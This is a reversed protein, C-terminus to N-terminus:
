EEIEEYESSKDKLQVIYYILCCIIIISAVVTGAEVGIFLYLNVQKEVEPAEYADEYIDAVGFFLMDMDSNGTFSPAILRSLCSTDVSPFQGDNNLFSAMMEMGCTMSSNHQHSNLITLHSSYPVEILRVNAPAGMNVAQQQAYKLPTEADLDGNLLLVPIQPKPAKNFYEDPQYIPFHSTSLTTALSVSQGTGMLTKNYQEVVVNVNALSLDRPFLESFSILDEWVVSFGVPLSHNNQKSRFFQFLHQLTPIDVDPDCRNLRYLVAPVLERTQERLMLSGLLQRLENETVVNNNKKNKVDGTMKTCTHNQFLSEFTSHLFHVPDKNLKKYCVTQNNCYQTLMHLGVSNIDTDWNTLMSRKGNDPEAPNGSSSSMVSDMVASQILQSHHPIVQLFRSLWLTGYALATVHTSEYEDNLAMLVSALDLSAISPSFLDIRNQYITNLSQSCLKMENDTITVGGESGTSEAQNIPCGLRHSNGLGRHDMTYFDYQAFLSHTTNRIQKIINEYHMVGPNGTLFWLARRKNNNKNNSSKMNNYTSTTTTPARLRKVFVFIKTSDASAVTYDLPLPVNACEAMPIEMHGQTSNEYVPTPNTSYLPCDYWTINSVTVPALKFGTMSFDEHYQQHHFIDDLGEANVVITAILSM